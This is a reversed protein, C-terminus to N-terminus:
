TFHCARHNALKRDGARSVGKIRQPSYLVVVVFFALSLTTSGTSQAERQIQARRVGLTTASGHTQSTETAEDDVKNRSKEEECDNGKRTHSDSHPHTQSHRCACSSTGERMRRIRMQATELFPASETKAKQKTTATVSGRQAHTSERAAIREAATKTATAQRSVLTVALM